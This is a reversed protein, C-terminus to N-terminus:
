EEWVVKIEEANGSFEVGECETIGLLTGLTCIIQCDENFIRTGADAVCNGWQFAYVDKGQFRYKIVKAGDECIDEEKFMEIETKICDPIDKDFKYKECAFFFLM